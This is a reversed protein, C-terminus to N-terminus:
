AVTFKAVDGREDSLSVSLAAGHMARAAALKPVLPSTPAADRSALRSAKFGTHELHLRRLEPCRAALTCLASESEEYQFYGTDSLDFTRCRAFVGLSGLADILHTLIVSSAAEGCIPAFKVARPEVLDGRSIKQLLRDLFAAFLMPNKGKTQAPAVLYPLFATHVFARRIEDITWRLETPATFVVSNGASDGVVEAVAMGRRPMAFKRALDSRFLGRSMDVHRHHRRTDRILINDLLVRDEEWLLFSNSYLAGEERVQADAEPFLRADCAIRLFHSNREAADAFKDRCQLFLVLTDHVSLKFSTGSRRGGALLGHHVDVRRFHDCSSCAPGVTRAVPDTCWPNFTPEIGDVSFRRTGGRTLQRRRGQHLLNEQLAEALPEHRQSLQWITRPRALMDPQEPKDVVACPTLNPFQLTTLHPFGACLVRALGEPTMLLPLRLLRLQRMADGELLRCLAFEATDIIARPDADVMLSELRCAALDLACLPPAPPSPSRWAHLPALLSATLKVTDDLALRLSVLGRLGMLLDGLRLANEVQAQSLPEFTGNLELHRLAALAGGFPARARLQAELRESFLGQARWDSLEERCRDLVSCRDLVLGLLGDAGGFRGDRDDALEDLVFSAPLASDGTAKVHLIVNERYAREAAARVSLFPAIVKQQLARQAYSTRINVVSVSRGKKRAAGIAYLDRVDEPGFAVRLPYTPPATGPELLLRRCKESPRPGINRERWLLRIRGRNLLAVFVPPILDPRYAEPRLARFAAREKLKRVLACAVCAGAAMEDIPARCAECLPTRAQATPRAAVVPTPQAQVRNPPAPQIFTLRQRKLSPGCHYHAAPIKVVPRAFTPAPVPAVPAPAAPVAPAAPAPMGTRKARVANTPQQKPPPADSASGSSPPAFSGQSTDRVSFDEPNEFLLTPATAAAAHGFGSQTFARLLDSDQESIPTFEDTDSLEARRNEIKRAAKVSDVRWGSRARAGGHVVQQFGDSTEATSSSSSSDLTRGVRAFPEVAPRPPSDVHARPPILALGDSEPLSDSLIPTQSISLSSEEEDILARRGSDAGDAGDGFSDM